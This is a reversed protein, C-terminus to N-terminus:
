SIIINNVEIVATQKGSPHFALDEVHETENITKFAKKASAKSYDFIKVTYDRAGSALLTERPHFRM